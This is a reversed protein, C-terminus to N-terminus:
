KFVKSMFSKKNLKTEYKIGDIKGSVSLFFDEPVLKVVRLESGNINLIVNQIKAVVEKETSSLVETVGTIDLKERNYLNVINNKLILNENVKEM